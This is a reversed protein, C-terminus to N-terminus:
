SFSSNVLTLTKKMQEICHSGVRIKEEAAKVKHDAEEEERTRGELNAIMKFFNFPTIAEIIVERMLNSESEIQDYYSGIEVVYGIYTFLNRLSPNEKGKPELDALIEEKLSFVTKGFLFDEKKLKNPPLHNLRLLFDEGKDNTFVQKKIINFLTFM